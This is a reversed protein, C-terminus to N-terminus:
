RCLITNPSMNYMFVNFVYYWRQLEVGVDCVHVCMSVPEVNNYPQFYLRSSTLMIRGPNCVLPAIREGLVDIVSNLM